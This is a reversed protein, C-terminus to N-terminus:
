HNKKTPFHQSLSKTVRLTSLTANTFSKQLQAAEDASGDEDLLKQAKVYLKVLASILGARRRVPDVEAEHQSM